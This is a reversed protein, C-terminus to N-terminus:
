HSEYPQVNFKGKKLVPFFIGIPQGKTIEIPTNKVLPECVFNLQVKFYKEDGIDYIGEQNGYEIGSIVKFIDQTNSFPPLSGQFLGHGVPCFINLGTYIKFYKSNGIWSAIYGTETYKVADGSFTYYGAQTVSENFKRELKGGPNFVITTSVPCVAMFGYNNINMMPPCDHPSVEYGSEMLKQRERFDLEIFSRGNMVVHKKSAFQVQTPPAPKFHVRKDFQYLLTVSM